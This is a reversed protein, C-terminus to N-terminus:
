SGVARLATLLFQRRFIIRHSVEELFGEVAERMEVASKQAGELQQQRLGSLQRVREEVSPPRTVGLRQTQKDDDVDNEEENLRVRAHETVLVGLVHGVVIVADGHLRM